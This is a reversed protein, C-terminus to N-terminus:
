IVNTLQILETPRRDFNSIMNSEEFLISCDKRM